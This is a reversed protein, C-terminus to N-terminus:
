LTCRDRDATRTISRDKQVGQSFVMVSALKCCASQVFSNWVFRVFLYNVSIEVDSAANEVIKDFDISKFLYWWLRSTLLVPVFIVDTKYLEVSSDILFDRDGFM